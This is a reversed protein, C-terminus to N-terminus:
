GPFWYFYHEPDDCMGDTPCGNDGCVICADTTTYGFAKYGPDDGLVGDWIRSFDAFAVKIPTSINHGLHFDSLGSFLRHKYAEGDPTHVGRGYVDVLLFSRANTPASTLNQIQALIVEAGKVM